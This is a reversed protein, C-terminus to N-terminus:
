KKIKITYTIINTEERDRDGGTGTGTGGGGIQQLITATVIVMITSDVKEEREQTTTAMSIEEATSENM